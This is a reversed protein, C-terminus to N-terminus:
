TTTKHIGDYLPQLTIKRKPARIMQVPHSSKDTKSYVIGDFVLDSKTLNLLAVNMDSQVQRLVIARDQGSVQDFTGQPDSTKSLGFQTVNIGHASIFRFYASLVLARKVKENIYALLEPRNNQGQQNGQQILDLIDQYLDDGLRPAIDYEQAGYIYPNIQDDKINQSFKVLNEPSFDAKTAILTM